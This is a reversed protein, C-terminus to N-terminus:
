PFMDYPDKVQAIREGCRNQLRGDKGKEVTLKYFDAVMGHHEDFSAMGMPGKVQVKSLAAIFADKDEVQGKVDKLAQIVMKAAMYGMYQYSGPVANYRAKYGDVFQKNEPTDLTGCYTYASMVGVADPPMNGLVEESTFSAIGFLPMKKNLGYETYQQTIRSSDSGWMAAFIGDAKADMKTLYPAYDPTGVNPFMPELVNEEGYVKKVVEFAERSPPANWGIFYAKKWNMQKTIKAAVLGFQYSSPVFRFIYPSKEARTLSALAVTSIWPIKQENVYPAMAAGVSSVLESLLLNVKDREVLAKTKTLGIDPKGMSDEYLLEIKRGAVTNSEEEFAQKVADREPAGQAAVPGTLPFMVGIKIPEQSSAPQMLSGLVALGAVAIASFHRM